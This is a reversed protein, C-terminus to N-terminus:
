TWCSNRYHEVVHWASRNRLRCAVADLGSRCFEVILGAQKGARQAVPPSMGDANEHGLEALAIMGLDQAADAILQNLLAVKVEGRMMPMLGFQHLLIRAQQHTAASLPQDEDIGGDLMVIRHRGDRNGRM